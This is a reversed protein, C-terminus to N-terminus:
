GGFVVADPIEYREQGVFIMNLDGGRATRFEGYGDAQSTDASVPKGREFFIFRKRGDPLTVVVTATGGGERAVGMQCQRLPQNEHQACGVPGTADFDGKGAREASSPAYGGGQRTSGGGDPAKFSLIECVGTSKDRATYTVLPPEDGQPTIDIYAGESRATIQGDPRNILSAVKGNVYVKGELNTDVNLGAPCRAAFLPVGANAVGAVLTAVAALLLRKM